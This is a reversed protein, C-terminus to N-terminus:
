AAGNILKMIYAYAGFLAAISATVAATFVIAKGWKDAKNKFGIADKHDKLIEQLGSENANKIQSLIDIQTLKINQIESMIALNSSEQTQKIFQMEVMLSAACASIKSEVDHDSKRRHSRSTSIM